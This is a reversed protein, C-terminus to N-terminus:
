FNRERVSKRTYYLGLAAFPLFLIAEWLGQVLGGIAAVLCILAGVGWWTAGPGSGPEGTGWLFRKIGTRPPKREGDQQSHM